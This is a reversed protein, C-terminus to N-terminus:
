IEYIRGKYEPLDKEARDKYGVSVIVRTVQEEVFKMNGYKRWEREMYYNDPHYPPLESNFPKVFAVFDKMLMDHVQQCADEATQPESGLSRSITEKIKSVSIVQKYFGKVKAEIDRLLTKGHISQWDDSRMPIYTVPRAGYQTLLSTPLSLGFKGYKSVHTGLSLFPIDAYCTINPVVLKEDEIQEAWNATYQVVGWSGDHPPHSICKGRLVKLLVQYNAENDSPSSHGVFHFLENSTYDTDV